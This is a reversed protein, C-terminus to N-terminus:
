KDSLLARFEEMEEKTPRLSNLTETEEREPERFNILLTWEPDYDIDVHFAKGQSAWKHMEDFFAGVAVSAEQLGRGRHNVRIRTPEM